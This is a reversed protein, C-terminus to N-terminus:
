IHTPQPISFSSAQRSEQERGSRLQGLSFFLRCFLFTLKWFATLSFHINHTGMSCQSGHRPTLTPDAERGEAAGQGTTTHLTLLGLASPPPQSTCDMPRSVEGRARAPPELNSPHQPKLGEWRGLRGQGLLPGTNKELHWASSGLRSSSAAWSAYRHAAPQGHAEAPRGHARRTRNCTQQPGECSGSWSGPVGQGFHAALHLQPLSPRHRRLPCCMGEEIGEGSGGSLWLMSCSSSKISSSSMRTRVEKGSFQSQLTSGTSLELSHPGPMGSRAEPSPRPLTVLSHAVPSRQM